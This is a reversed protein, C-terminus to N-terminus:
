KPIKCYMKQSLVNKGLDLTSSVKVELDSKDKDNKQKEELKNETTDDGIACIHKSKKGSLIRRLWRLLSYFTSKKGKQNSTAM